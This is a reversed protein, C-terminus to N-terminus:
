GAIRMVRTGWNAYFSRTNGCTIDNLFTASSCRQNVYEASLWLSGDPTALAFGYDGWRPRLGGDFTGSDGDYPGVGAGGVQVSTPRTGAPFSSYVASPYNNPGSMTAGVVVTGHTSVAISPYTLNANAVGVYGQHVMSAQLSTPTEHARVAFYAVGARQDAPSWTGDTSNYDAAGHGQLATGTSLYVIGQRLWAGYIKGSGADLPVPGEQHPYDVGICATHNICRLLPTPGPKQLAYGPAAYGESDVARERLWLHPDSGKLSGTNSLSFMSVQHATGNVFPSVSMGFYITGGLSRDWDGPLANAPQLTYARSQSTDSRINQLYTSTPTHNGMALDAKSIAYLQTGHFEGNGLNDFENTTIFLGDGNLGVQPYDGFCYGSSCGHDPTGNTGNNTTDISWVNYTGLPNPSTSAAVLIASPGTFAATNQDIGLELTIVFWRHLQADYMCQPDSVFPGFPGSPRIFSSPLGFFQNVSVGVPGAAPVGAQGHLLPHGTPSYVQLVSNVNEMVFNPSVCLAQDPPEGSFQNGGDSYRNDFHNLGDWSQLLGHGTQLPLTSGSPLTASPVSARSGLTQEHAALRRLHESEIQRAAADANSAVPAAGQRGVRWIPKTTRDFTIPAPGQPHKPGAVAAPGAVYLLSAVLLATSTAAMTALRFRRPM